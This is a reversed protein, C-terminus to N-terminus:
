HGSPGCGDWGFTAAAAATAAEMGQVAPAPTMGPLAQPLRPSPRGPRGGLVPWPPHFAPETHAHRESQM